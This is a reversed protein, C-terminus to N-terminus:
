LKYVIVMTLIILAKGLIDITIEEKRFIEFYKVLEVTDLLKKLQIYKEETKQQETQVEAVIEAINENQNEAIMADRLLCRIDEQSAVEFPTQGDQNKVFPNSGHSLLM